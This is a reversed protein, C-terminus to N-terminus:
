LLGTSEPATPLPRMLEIDALVEQVTPWENVNKMEKIMEMPKQKISILFQKELIHVDKETYCVLNQKPDVTNIQSDLHAIESDM